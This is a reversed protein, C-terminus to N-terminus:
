NVRVQIIYRREVPPGAVVTVQVRSEAMTVSPVAVTKFGLSQVTCGCRAENGPRELSGCGSQSQSVPLARRVHISHSNVFESFEALKVTKINM